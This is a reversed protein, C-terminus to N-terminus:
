EAEKAPQVHYHGTCVKGIKFLAVSFEQALARQKEGRRFRVLIERVQQPTLDPTRRYGRQLRM